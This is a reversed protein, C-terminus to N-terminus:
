LRWQLRGGRTYRATEPNPVPYASSFRWGTGDMRPQLWVVYGYEWHVYLRDLPHNRGSQPRVHWCETGPVNGMLIERIWKVRAIRDLAPQNKSYPHKARNASTRFAHDYRDKYFTATEGGHLSVSGAHESQIYLEEFARRGEAFADEESLNGLDLLLTNLDVVM